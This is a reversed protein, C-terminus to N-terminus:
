NQIQGTWSCVALLGAKAYCRCVRDGVDVVKARLPGLHATGVYVRQSVNVGSLRGRLEVIDCHEM